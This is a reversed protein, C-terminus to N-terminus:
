KSLSVDHIFFHTGTAGLKFGQVNDSIATYSPQALTPFTLAEAMIMKQATKAADCRREFNPNGAVVDLVANLEPDHYGGWNWGGPVDYASNWIDDLIKPDSSRLREYMLEFNRSTRRELQVPGPVQEVKIGVGIQLLQAQVVEGIEPHHLVTWSINLETGDEVGEVGQAVRLNGSGEVWGAEDLLAKAKAPDHLYMDSAGEWFCSHINNLPGDAEGYLGDYLIDNVRDMDRGYLLAQRVRKDSLPQNRVNMIMQLGVGPQGMALLGVGATNKYQETALAPIQYSIDAEGTAVVSGHVAPEAIWQIRVTDVQAPGKLNVGDNSGRYADWSELLIYDNAKWEVLKFPGTGILKKDFESPTSAAAATPSWMPAKTAMDLFTVWASNYNFRVTMDDLAKVSGVPGVQSALLASGTEPALIREFNYVVADANFPTGDQFTVGERLAITVVKADDSIEWSTALGPVFSGDSARVVLPDTMFSNILVNITYPDVQYDLNAPESNASMALRLEGGALAPMGSTLALSCMTLFAFGTRATWKTMNIKTM